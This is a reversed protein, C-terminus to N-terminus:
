GVKIMIIEHILPFNTGFFLSWFANTDAVPTSGQVGLGNNRM